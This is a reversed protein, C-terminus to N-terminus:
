SSFIEEKKAAMKTFDFSKQNNIPSKVKINISKKLM